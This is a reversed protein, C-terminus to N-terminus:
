IVERKLIIMIILMLMPMPTPIPILTRRVRKIQLYTYPYFKLKLPSKLPFWYRIYNHWKEIQCVIMTINLNSKEAMKSKLCEERSRKENPFVKLSSKCCHYHHLTARFFRSIGKKYFYSDWKWKAMEATQKTQCCFTKENADLINYNKASFTLAVARKIRKKGIFYAFILNNRM